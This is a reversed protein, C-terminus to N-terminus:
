RLKLMDPLKQVIEKLIMPNQVHSEYNLSQITSVVNSIHSSLSILNEMDNEKVVSISKVKMLLTEIIQEPKGFRMKLTEIVQHLNQPSILRGAVTSRVEGRLCKKLKIMAEEDTYECLESIRKSSYIFTPWDECRGDFIPFDNEVSHRRFIKENKSSYANNTNVNKLLSNLTECLQNVESKDPLPTKYANKEEWEENDFPKVKEVWDAERQQTLQIFAPDFNSDSSHNEYITALLEALDGSNTVHKGNFDLTKIKM